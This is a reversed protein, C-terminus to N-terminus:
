PHSREKSKPGTEIVPPPDIAPVIAVPVIAAAALPAQPMAAMAAAVASAAAVAKSDLEAQLQQRGQLLGQAHAQEFIIKKMEDLQSNMLKHQVKNAESVNEIATSNEKSATVALKGADEAQVRANEAKLYTLLLGVATALFGFFSMWFADTM